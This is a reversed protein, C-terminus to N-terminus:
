AIYGSSSVVDNFLILYEQFILLSYFAVMYLQSHQGIMKRFPIRTETGFKMGFQYNMVIDSNQAIIKVVFLVLADVM